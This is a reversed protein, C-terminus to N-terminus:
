RPALLALKESRGVLPFILLGLALATQFFMTPSQNTANRIKAEYEYALRIVESQCGKTSIPSRNTQGSHSNLERPRSLNADRTYQHYLNFLLLSAALLFVVVLVKAWIPKEWKTRPQGLALHQQNSKIGQLLDIQHVQAFEALAVKNFRKISDRVKENQIIRKQRGDSSSGEFM